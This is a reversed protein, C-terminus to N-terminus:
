VPLEAWTLGRHLGWFEPDRHTKHLPAAIADEWLRACMWDPEVARLANLNVRVDHYQHMVFCPPLLAVPRLGIGMFKCLMSSDVGFAFGTEPYGRVAEFHEKSALVFDGAHYDWYRNAAVRMKSDIDGETCIRSFTKAAEPLFEPKYLGTKFYPTSQLRRTDSTSQELERLGEAVPLKLTNSPDEASFRMGIVYFSNKDIKKLSLFDMLGPSFIADINTAIVFTGQAARIGVNKAYYEAMPANSLYGEYQLQEHLESPATAVRVRLSGEPCADSALSANRGQRIGRRILETLPPREKPPNWEVYVLETSPTCHRLMLQHVMFSAHAVLRDAQKGAYDDNRSTMVISLFPKQGEGTSSERNSADISQRWPLSRSVARQWHSVRQLWRWSSAWNERLHEQEPVSKWYAIRTEHTLEDACHHAATPALKAAALLQAHAEHDGLERARLFNCAAEGIRGQAKLFTGLNGYGFQSDPLVKLSARMVETAESLRRSHMLQEALAFYSDGFGPWLEMSRRFRFEAETKRAQQVLFSGMIYQSRYYRPSSRVAQEVVSDERLWIKAYIRTAYTEFSLIFLVSMIVACNLASRFRTCEQLQSYLGLLARALVPTGLLVCALHCYRDAAIEAIHNGVLGLSPTLLTVYSLSAVACRRGVRGGFLFACTAAFLSAGCALTAGGFRWTDWSVEEIPHAYFMCLDIPLFQQIVYLVIMHCARLIRRQGDWQLFWAFTGKSANLASLVSSVAVLIIPFDDMCLASARWLMRRLGGNEDLEFLLLLDLLLIAGVVGLAAAKSFCACLLFVASALRWPGWPQAWGSSVHCGGTAGRTRHRVHCICSVLAFCAALSFPLCSAWALVEVRLPHVGVMAAALTCCWSGARGDSPALPRPGALLRLLLFALESALLCALCHLVAGAGLFVHANMGFRDALVAKVFLACPEWVGIASDSGLIEYLREPWAWLSDVPRLLTNQVYNARDDGSDFKRSVDFCDSFTGAVLAVLLVQEMLRMFALTQKEEPPTADAM